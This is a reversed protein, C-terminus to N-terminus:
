DLAARGEHAYRWLREQGAGDLLEVVDVVPAPDGSLMTQLALHGASGRVPADTTLLVLPWGLDSQALVAAKGLSKWLTDTRRLGARNSTFAGSVDFAWDAGTADTAVINVTIGLRRPKVDTRVNTFGCAEVVALALDKAARGERVARVQPDETDDAPAPLPPLSVSFTGPPAPPVAAPAQTATTSSASVAASPPSAPTSAAAEQLRVREDAVRQEALAVYDPDTDYGIFRRGTRVAAVAASGSGMFPDLVVDDAYTYLHLLREPLAVPFPAPHGVKTASEPPIEWLDTTAEM